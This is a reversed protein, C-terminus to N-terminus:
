HAPPAAAKVTSATTHQGLWLADRYNVADATTITPTPSQVQSEIFYAGKWQHIESHGDAFGFGCANNHTQSPWNGQIYSGGNIVGSDPMREEFLGDDVSAPKEDLFVYFNAPGPIDASKLFNLYLNTEAADIGSESNMYNQMAISRVRLPALGLGYGPNAPNLNGPDAPCKFVRTNKLYSGLLGRTLLLDNTEDYTGSIGPSAGGSVVGTVWNYLNFNGTDPSSISAWSPAGTLLYPIADPPTARQDGINPVLNQKYDDLYMIWALTVQKENNMCFSGQAHQKAHALAPLLMGALIAIIAIVVLLEILTFGGRTSDDNRKMGHQIPM